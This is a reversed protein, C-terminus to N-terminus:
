VVDIEKLPDDRLVREFGFRKLDLTKYECYVVLESVAKGIAAAHQLGHGSSGNAFIFNSLVPHSGIILNQDLTNYEYYGSWADVLKLNRFTPVREFLIPKIHKEFYNQDIEDLDMNQPENTENQNLGCIYYNSLSHRRFFVGSYDITLPVNLIPGNEAYFMYIYRKRAEVPLSVILPTVKENLGVSGIGALRAINAAWPGACNIM